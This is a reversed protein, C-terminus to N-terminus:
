ANSAGLLSYAFEDLTKQSMATNNLIIVTDEGDLRHGLVSRFGATRMVVGYFPQAAAFAEAVPNDAFAGASLLTAAGGGIFNRRTWYNM